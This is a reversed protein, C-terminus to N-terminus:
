KKTDRKTMIGELSVSNIRFGKSSDSVISVRMNKADGYVTPKRGITYRAPVVRSTKRKIDEIKLEFDSGEESAVMITKCKLHM